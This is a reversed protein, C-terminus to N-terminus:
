LGCVASDDLAAVFANLDDDWGRNPYAGSPKKGFYLGAGERTRLHCAYARDVPLTEMDDLGEFDVLHRLGGREIEWTASIRYDDGPFVRAIRWGRRALRDELERLHWEAM